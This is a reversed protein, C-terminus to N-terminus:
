DVTIRDKIAAFRKEGIGSINKIEEISDFGSHSERYDIIRQAYVEGIGKLTMLLEKSATNINIKQSLDVNVTARVTKQTSSVSQPSPSASSSQELSSITGAQGVTTMGSEEADSYVVGVPSLEPADSAALLGVGLCLLLALVVLVREKFLDSM